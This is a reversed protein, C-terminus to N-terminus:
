DLDFLDDLDIMVGPLAHLEVKGSNLTMELYLGNPQRRWATLSPTFPHLHWIESDGREQYGPLKEDIDFRGTSPSWIESVFPLPDRFVEFTNLAVGEPHRPVVYVDPLYYTRASRRVPAQSMRVEFPKDRLQMYLQFFLKAEMRNHGISMTPKERIEGDYMELRRDPTAQVIEEFTQESVLMAYEECPFRGDHLGGSSSSADKADIVSFRVARGREDDDPM